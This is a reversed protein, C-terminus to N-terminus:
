KKALCFVSIGFFKNLGIVRSEIKCVFKLVTNVIWTHGKLSSTPQHGSRFIKDVLIFASRLPFVSAFFYGSHITKLGSLAVLKEVEKLHYRRRHELFVDHGSWLFQFAPVSIMFHTGVECQDVYRKLFQLDNDIHELVDLMLVIDGNVERHSAHFYCAKGNVYSVSEGDYGVDICHAKELGLNKLLYRSFFGSGAGVDILCSAEIHRLLNKVAEAKSEYYWHQDIQNGLTELEKLDM